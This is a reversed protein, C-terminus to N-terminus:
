YRFLLEQKLYDTETQLFSQLCNALAIYFANDSGTKIRECFQKAFPHLFRNFFEQQTSRFIDAEKTNQQQQFEVHKYILYNMFELEVSIHDPLDHFDDGLDLGYHIYFTRVAVTSDGMLRRGSDLYVSGYPAAILEFPGVFLKANDVKLQDVGLQHFQHQMQEVFPKCQPSVADIARQLTALSDKISFLEEDPPYFFVALLRYIDSRQLEIEINMLTGDNQTIFKVSKPHLRIAAFGFRLRLVIKTM